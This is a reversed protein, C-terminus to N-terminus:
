DLLDLLLQHLLDLGQKTPYVREGDQNLNGRKVHKEIVDLMWREEPFQDKFDCLNVGQTRRLGLMFFEFAKDKNSLEESEDYTRPAKLYTSMDKTRTCRVGELFSSASLGFGFYDEGTWYSSNHKSEFGEKSFNSVEYRKYGNKELEEELLHFQRYSDDSSLTKLRPLDEDLELEYISIHEPGLEMMRKISELVDEDSSYNYILDLSLNHIGAERILSVAEEVRISDHIRGLIKLDEDKMSQVGMSIRNVGAKVYDKLLDKTVSEPNVEMTWEIADKSFPKLLHLLRKRGKDSLASPTGGGVYLTTIRSEKLLPEELIDRELADLYTDELSLDLHSTFHCYACRRKCFPIHM